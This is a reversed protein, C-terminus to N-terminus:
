AVLRTSRRSELLESLQWRLDNLLFPKSIVAEAGLHRLQTVDDTRPFNALAVVPVKSNSRTLRQLSDFGSTTLPGDWILADFDDGQENANGELTRCELSGSALGDCLTLASEPEKSWIGVRGVAQPIPQKSFYLSQEGFTATRPFNWMASNEISSAWSQGSWHALWQHWYLRLVGQWPAGTRTEGECWSGLLCVIRALPASAALAEVDARKIQDPYAQAVVILSPTIEGPRLRASAMSLSTEIILQVHHDRLLQVADVFEHHEYDGTLLVIPSM